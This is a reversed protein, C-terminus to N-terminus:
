ECFSQGNFTFCRGGRPRAPGAVPRSPRAPRAVPRAPRPAVAPRPPRPVVAPRAPKVVPPAVAAVCIGDVAKMGSACVLPCIRDSHLKLNALFADSPADAPVRIKAHKGYDALATRGATTPWQDDVPGAYCGIRALEKKMEIIIAQRTPRAPPALPTPPTVVAAPPAAPTPLAALPAVPPVAIAPVAPRAPSAPRETPSVTVPSLPPAPAVVAPPPAVAVPPVPAIPVTPAAPSAGLRELEERARKEREALERMLREHELRARESAIAALRQREELEKRIRERTLNDAVERDITAVKARAAEGLPSQPFRQMFEIFVTREKSQNIRSWVQFDTEAQKFYFEGLISVSLEPTQRGNTSRNVEAAVRRFLAGVELNPTEIHKLIATTFPSNRENGDFSVDNAQTAFAILTGAAREIRALGRTDGISRNTALSQLRKALPNDRCADLMLLKVGKARNLASLVDDVRTMEFTLSVEDELKADIPMLYNSGQFQMGHGAYFFVAADADTAARAFAAIAQDMGRKDLNTSKFVQFGLKQLVLGMDESDNPPNILSPTSKYEANGIVLAVRKEALAAGAHCLALIGACLLQRLKGTLM